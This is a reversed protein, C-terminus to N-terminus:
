VSEPLMGPKGEFRGTSSASSPPEGKKHDLMYGKKAMHYTLVGDFGNVWLLIIGSVVMNAPVGSLVSSLVFLWVLGSGTMELVGLFRHGLYFDGLGPLLLARLLAKRPRKFGAWCHTCRVLGKQLPSFCVPCLNEPERPTHEAHAVAERKKTVFGYLEKSLYSKVGMFHRRKGQVRYFTLSGGFIGRKIKRIDQFQLQFLYHSPKNMRYNVNIFLLRRDTAIICYRNYLMTLFGNGLLIEFPYYATGWCVKKVMEGNELIKELLGHISILIKATRKNRRGRNGGKKNQFFVGELDYKELSLENLGPYENRVTTEFLADCPVAPQRTEPVPPVPPHHPDEAAPETRMAYQDHVQIIMKHGCKKCIAAGKKGPPVRNERIHYATNCSPCIIQVSQEKGAREM